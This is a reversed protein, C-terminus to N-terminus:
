GSLVERIRGKLIKYNELYVRQLHTLRERKPFMTYPITKM